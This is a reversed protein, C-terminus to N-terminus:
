SDEEREIDERELNEHEESEVAGKPKRRRTLYRVLIVAVVIVVVVIVVIVFMNSTVTGTLTVLGYAAANNAMNDDIPVIAAATINYTGPELGETEWNFSETVGFGTVLAEVVRGDKSGIDIGNYRTKIVVRETFNGLNKVTVEVIISEGAGATSTSVNLQTIGVDRILTIRVKLTYTNDFLVFDSPPSASITMEYEGPLMGTTDWHLTVIINEGTALFLDTQKEIITTSNKLTVNFTEDFDGKNSINAVFTIPDGAKEVRYPDAVANVIGIDRILTNSFFGSVVQDVTIPNNQIDLLDGYKHVLELPSVGLSDVTFDVKLLNATGNVGSTATIEMSQSVYVYGEWSYIEVYLQTVRLEGTWTDGVKQAIVGAQFNELEDWSWAKGTFPSVAWESTYNAYTTTPTIVSGNTVKLNSFLIMRIQEDSSETNRAWITLKVKRVSNWDTTPFVPFGFFDSANSEAARIYTGDGDNPSEDVDRYTGNWSRERGDSNPPMRYIGSDDIKSASAATFPAYASFGTATLVSMNYSLVCTYGWLNTVGSAVVNVNFTGGETLGLDITNKPDVYYKIGEPDVSYAVDLTICLGASVIILLALAVIKMAGRQM